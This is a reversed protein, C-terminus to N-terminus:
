SSWPLGCVGWSNRCHEYFELVGRIARQIVQTGNSGKDGRLVELSKQPHGKSGRPSELIENCEKFRGLFAESNSLM